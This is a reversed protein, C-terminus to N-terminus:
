VLWWCTVLNFGDDGWQQSLGIYVMIWSIWPDFTLSNEPTMEVSLENNRAMKVRGFDSADCDRLMPMDQM